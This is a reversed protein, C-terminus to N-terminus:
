IIQDNKELQFKEKPLKNPKEKKKSMKLRKLPGCKLMANLLFTLVLEVTLETHEEEEKLLETPRSM